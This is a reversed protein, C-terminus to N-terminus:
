LKWPCILMSSIPDDGARRRRVRRVGHQDGRDRERQRADAVAAPELVQLEEPVPVEPHIGPDSAAGNFDLPTGKVPVIEGTPILREDVQTMRDAAITVVHGLPDLGLGLGHLDGERIDIVHNHQVNLIIANSEGPCRRRGQGATAGCVAFEQEHRLKVKRWTSSRRGPEYSRFLM